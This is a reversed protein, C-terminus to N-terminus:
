VGIVSDRTYERYVSRADVFSEIPVFVRYTNWGVFYQGTSRSVWIGVFEGEKTSASKKVLTCNEEVYNIPVMDKDM